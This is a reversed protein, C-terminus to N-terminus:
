LTSTASERTTKERGSRNDLNFTIVTTVYHSRYTKQIAQNEVLDSQVDDKLNTIIETHQTALSTVFNILTVQLSLLGQNQVFQTDSLRLRRIEMLAKVYISEAKVM